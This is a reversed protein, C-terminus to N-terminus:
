KVSQVTMMVHMIIAIGAYHSSFATHYLPVIQLLVQDFEGLQFKMQPRYWLCVKLASFLLHAYELRRRDLMLREHLAHYSHISVLTKLTLMIITNNYRAHKGPERDTTNEYKNYCNYIDSRQKYSVQTFYGNLMSSLRYGPEENNNM